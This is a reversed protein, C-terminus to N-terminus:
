RLLLGTAALAPAMEMTAMSSPFIELPSKQPLAVGLPELTLCYKCYKMMSLLTFQEDALNRFLLLIM